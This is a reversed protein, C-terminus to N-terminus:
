GAWVWLLAVVVCCQGVVLYTGLKKVETCTEEQAQLLLRQTNLLENLKEAIPEMERDVPM